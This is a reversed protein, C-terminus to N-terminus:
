WPSNPYEGPYIVKEVMQHAELFKAVAIANKQHREMRVHLTKAGRNALYCDFPSPVIGAASFHFFTFKSSMM